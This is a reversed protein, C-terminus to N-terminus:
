RLMSALRELNGYYPVIKRKQKEGCRTCVLTRKSRILVGSCKKCIGLIVGLNPKWISLGIVGMFNTVVSAVVLDGVGVYEGIDGIRRGKSPIIVATKPHKLASGNASLITVVAIKDQVERVQALVQDGVKIAEVHKLPKVHVIRKSHDYHVVGNIMSALVGDSHLKVNEGAAFEEEVCIPEGPTVVEGEKVFVM